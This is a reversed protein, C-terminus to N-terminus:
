SQLDYALVNTAFRRGKIHATVNTIILMIALYLISTWNFELVNILNCSILYSIIIVLTSIYLDRCLLYDRNSEFIMSVNRHKNYIKYWQSNEYKLKEKKDVPLGEFIEKYKALLQGTTFRLDTNKKKLESFITEGPLHGTFYLLKMKVGSSFLADALFAFIYISSSLLTSDLIKVLVNLWEYQNNQLNFLDSLLILVFINAVIYMKQEKERYDKLNDLAHEKRIL